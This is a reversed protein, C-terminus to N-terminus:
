LSKKQLTNAEELKKLYGGWIDTEIFANLVWKGDFQNKTVAYEENEECIGNVISNKLRQIEKMCYINWGICLAVVLLWSLTVSRLIKEPKSHSSRIKNM